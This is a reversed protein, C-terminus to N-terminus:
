RWRPHRPLAPSQRDEVSASSAFRPRGNTRMRLPQLEALTEARNALQEDTRQTEEPKKFTMALEELRRRSAGPCLPVGNFLYVGDARTGDPNNVAGIEFLVTRKTSYKMIM